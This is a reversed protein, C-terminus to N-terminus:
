NLKIKKYNSNLSNWKDKCMTGNRPFKNKTRQQLKEVFRTGINHLPPDNTNM